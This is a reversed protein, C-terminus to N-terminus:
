PDRGDRCRSCQGDNCLAVVEGGEIARGAHLDNRTHRLNTAIQDAITVDTVRTEVPNPNDKHGAVLSLDTARGRKDSDPPCSKVARGRCGFHAMYVVIDFVIARDVVPMRVSNAASEDAVRDRSGDTSDSQQRRSLQCLQRHASNGKPDAERSATSLSRSSPAGVGREHTARIVFRSAGVPTPLLAEMRLSPM